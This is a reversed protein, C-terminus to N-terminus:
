EDALQGHVVTNAPHLVFALLLAEADEFSRTLRTHSVYRGELLFKM